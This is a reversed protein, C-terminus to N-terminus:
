GAHHQHVDMLEAYKVKWEQNHQLLQEIFDNEDKELSGDIYNWLKEEINQPINM